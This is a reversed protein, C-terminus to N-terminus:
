KIKDVRKLTGKFYPHQEGFIERTKAPNGQLEPPPAADEFRERAVKPQTLPETDSQEIDCRCNYDMGIFYKNWIPDNMPRTLGNLKVHSPRVRADGVTRWTLNPYQDANQQFGDWAKVAQARTATTDYETDQYSSFRDTVTQATTKYDNFEQKNGDEDHVEAKLADQMTLTKAAAFRKLNLAFDEPVTGKLTSKFGKELDKYIDDATPQHLENTTPNDYVWELLDDFEVPKRTKNDASLKIVKTGGCCPCSKSYAHKLGLMVTLAIESRRVALSKKKVPAVPEDEKKDKPGPEPEDEDEEEEPPADKTLPIGFTEQVWELDPQYGFQMASSVKKWLAELDISVAWEFDTGEPILAHKVMLKFLKKITFLLLRKDAEKVADMVREHVESQSLSSGDEITMTQRIILKSLELNCRKILDEYVEPGGKNENKLLEIREGEQFVAYAAAGMNKLNDAMKKMDTQQRSQTYGVRLPMGFIETYQSWQLKANKKIIFDPAAIKFLGHDRPGGVEVLWNCYPASRFAITNLIDGQLVSVGGTEPVVHRRPVIDCFGYGEGPIPEWLQILSHGWWVSDLALALFKYFWESIFIKEIAKAVPQGDKDVIRFKEGLLGDRRQGIVGEIHGDLVVEDYLTYLHIRQPYLINEAQMIAGRWTDIDQRTRWKTQEIVHSIIEEEIDTKKGAAAKTSIKAM